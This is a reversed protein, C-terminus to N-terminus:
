KSFRRHLARGLFGLAALPVLAAGGVIVLWILAALARQGLVVVYQGALRVERGLDFKEEPLTVRTEQTVEVTITSYSTLNELYQIQGELSEIQMRVDALHEQVALVDGVTVADTLIVLYQAEQAQASRLRAELDTFQETVDQGQTSEREVRVGLAKIAALTAEFASVPVRVTVNGVRNGVYDEEVSSYQIFGQANIAAKTIADVTADVDDATM